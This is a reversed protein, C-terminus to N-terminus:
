VATHVCKRLIRHYTPMDKPAASVAELKGACIMEEIRFAVWFDSIGLQYKGLVRGVIMVEQFKEDETAIERIIFDDYINEPVSVLRGNLVARLPANEAQLAQWHAACSRCFIPSVPQTSFSTGFHPGSSAIQRGNANAGHVDSM